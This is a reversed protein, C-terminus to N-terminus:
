RAPKLRSLKILRVGILIYWILLFPASASLPIFALRPDFALAFFYGLGLTNALIGIYATIRPFVRSRLMVVSIILGSVTVLNFAWFPGTGFATHDNLTLLAQGAAMLISKQLDTEAAFYQRSLSLLSFAQNSSYYVAIGTFALVLALTMAGRASKRLAAYLGLFILGVLAYNVLDLVNLLILGVLPHSHLLSFWDIVSTPESTPGVGIIGSSTLLSFEAALWRRFIIAALLAAVGAVLYLGRWTPDVGTEVRAGIAENATSM